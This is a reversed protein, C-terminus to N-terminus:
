HWLGCYDGKICKGGDYWDWGCPALVKETLGALEKLQNTDSFISHWLKSYESPCHTGKQLGSVDLIVGGDDGEIESLSLSVDEGKKTKLDIKWEGSSMYTKRLSKWARDQTINFRRALFRMGDPFNLINPVPHVVAWDGSDEIRWGHTAVYSSMGDCRKKGCKVIMAIFLPTGDGDEAKLKLGTDFLVTCSVKRRSVYKLVEVFSMKESDDGDTPLVSLFVDQALQREIKEYFKNRDFAGVLSKMESHMTKISIFNVNQVRLFGRKDQINKGIRLRENSSINVKGATFAYNSKIGFSSALPINGNLKKKM